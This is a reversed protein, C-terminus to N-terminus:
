FGAAAGLWLVAPVMAGWFAIVLVDNCLSCGNSGTTNGTEAFHKNESMNAFSLSYTHRLERQM